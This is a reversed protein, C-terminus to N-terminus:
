PAYGRGYRAWAADPIRLFVGYVQQLIVPVADTDVLPLHGLLGGGALEVRLGEDASMLWRQLNDDLVLDIVEPDRSTVRFRQNFADPTRQNIRSLRTHAGLSLLPFDAPFTFLVCTRHDVAPDDPYAMTRFDFIQADVGGFKGYIVESVPKDQGYRFLPMPPWGGPNDHKYQRDLEETFRFNFTHALGRMGGTDESFGQFFDTM